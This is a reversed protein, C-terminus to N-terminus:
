IKQCSVLFCDGLVERQLPTFTFALLLALSGSIWVDRLKDTEHHKTHRVKSYHGLPALNRSHEDLRYLYPHATRTHTDGKPWIIELTPKNNEQGIKLSRFRYHNALNKPWLCHKILKVQSKPSKKAYKAICKACHM